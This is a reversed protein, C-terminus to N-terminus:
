DTLFTPLPGIEPVIPSDVPFAVHKPLNMLCRMELELGHKATVSGLDVLKADANSLGMLVAILPGAQSDLEKKYFAVSTPDQGGLEKRLAERGYHLIRSAENLGTGYANRNGAADVIFDVDGVHCALRIGLVKEVNAKGFHKLLRRQHSYFSAHISFLAKMVRDTVEPKFVVFCGDGTPVIQDISPERSFVDNSFKALQLGEYFMTLIASQGRTDYKSYGAVDVLVIGRKSPSFLKRQFEPSSLYAELQPTRKLNFQDAIMLPGLGLNLGRVVTISVTDGSHAVELVKHWTAAERKLSDLQLESMDSQEGRGTDFVTSGNGM